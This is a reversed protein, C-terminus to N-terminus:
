KKYNENTYRTYIYIIVKESFLNFIFIEFKYIAATPGEVPQIHQQKNKQPKTENKAVFHANKM